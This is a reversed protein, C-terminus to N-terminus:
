KRGETNKAMFNERRIEDITEFVQWEKVGFRAESGEIFEKMENADRFVMHALFDFGHNIRYLSNLSNHQKIHEEFGDRKEPDVKFILHAVRKYGLRQFDILATHHMNTEEELTALRDYLTTVPVNLIRSIDTIKMRSGNRLYSILAIDTDKLTNNM